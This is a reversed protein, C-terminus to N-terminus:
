MDMTLTIGACERSSTLTYSDKKVRRRLVARVLALNRIHAPQRLQALSRLGRAQLGLLQGGAITRQLWAGQRAKNSTHRGVTTAPPAAALSLSCESSSSSSNKTFFQTDSIERWQM